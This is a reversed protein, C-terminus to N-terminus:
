VEEGFAASLEAVEHTVWLALADFDRVAQAKPQYIKVPCCQAFAEPLHQDSNVMLPVLRGDTVQGRIFDMSDRQLLVQPAVDNVLLYSHTKAETQRPLTDVFYRTLGRILRPEPQVINIVIDCHRYAWRQLASEEAPLDLILFREQKALLPAFLRTMKSMDSEDSGIIYQDDSMMGMPIFPYGASSEFTIDLIASDNRLASVIGKTDTPEMGFHLCLSNDRNLDIAIARHEMACLAVALGAVITTAGAGGFVNQVGVVTAAKNKESATM